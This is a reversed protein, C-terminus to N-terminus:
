EEIFDYERMQAIFHAVAKKALAEDVDYEALLAKVLKEEDIGGDCKEWLFRFTENLTVLMNLNLESGSAVVVTEGAVDRLVFGDKIKM